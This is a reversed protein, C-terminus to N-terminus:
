LWTCHVEKQRVVLDIEKGMQKVKERKKEHYVETAEQLGLSINRKRNEYCLKQM